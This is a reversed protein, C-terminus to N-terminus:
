MTYMLSWSGLHVLKSTMVVVMIRETISHVGRVLLKFDTLWLGEERSNQEVGVM